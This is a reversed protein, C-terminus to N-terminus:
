QPPRPLSDSDHLAKYSYQAVLSNIAGQSIHPNDFLFRFAELLRKEDVKYIMEAGAQPM